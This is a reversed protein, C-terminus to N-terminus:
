NNAKIRERDERVKKLAEERTINKRVDSFLGEKACRVIAMDLSNRPLSVTRRVSTNDFSAPMYSSSANNLDPLNVVYNRRVTVKPPKTIGLRAFIGGSKMTMVDEGDPVLELCGKKESERFAEQMQESVDDYEVVSTGILAINTAKSSQGNPNLTNACTTIHGVCINFLECGPDVDINDILILVSIRKMLHDDTLSLCHNPQCIFDARKSGIDFKNISIISQELNRFATDIIACVGKVNKGYKELFRHHILPEISITICGIHIYKNASDEARMEQIDSADFLPFCRMLYYRDTNALIKVNVERKRAIKKYKGDYVQGSKIDSTLSGNSAVIARADNVSVIGKM